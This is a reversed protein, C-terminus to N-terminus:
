SRKGGAEVLHRATIDALEYDSRIGERLRGEIAALGAFMEEELAALEEPFLVSM